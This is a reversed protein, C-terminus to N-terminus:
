GDKEEGEKSDLTPFEMTYRDWHVTNCEIENKVARIQNNGNNLVATRTREWVEQMIAEEETLVENNGHGWLFGFNEEFQSLAGIFSTRIKTTIIKGLREKSNELYKQENEKRIKNRIAKLKNVDVPKNEEMM